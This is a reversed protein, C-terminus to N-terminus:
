LVKQKFEEPTVQEGGSFKVRRGGFRDMVRRLWRFQNPRWRQRVLAPGAQELVASATPAIGKVANQHQVWSALRGEEVFKKAAALQRKSKEHEGPATLRVVADPSMADYWGQVDAATESRRKVTLYKQVVDAKFEALVLIKLAVSSMWPTCSGRHEEALKRKCAAIQGQLESQRQRADAM